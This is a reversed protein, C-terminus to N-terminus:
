VLLSIRTQAQIHDLSKQEEEHLEREVEKIEDHLARHHDYSCNHSEVILIDRALELRQLRARLDNIIVAM